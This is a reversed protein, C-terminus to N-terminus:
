AESPMRSSREGSVRSRQAVGCRQCERRQWVETRESVGCDTKVGTWASVVVHTTREIVKYEHWRLWRHAFFCRLSGWELMAYTAATAASVLVIAVVYDM